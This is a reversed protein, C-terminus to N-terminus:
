KVETHVGWIESDAKTQILVPTGEPWDLNKGHVFVGAVVGIPGLALVGALSAGTAMALNAMEKKAKEGVYTETYTGDISKIKSFDIVVQANRGFNRAQKVKTVTGIGLAGKPFVLADDIIVDEAVRYTVEDGVKINKANVAEALEIKIITDAPVSVQGMPITAAGFSMTALATIRERLTGEATKGNLEIEAADIRESLPTGSVKESINWEIANMQAMLSPNVNNEYLLDCLVDIRASLSGTSHEGILETELFSLREMVAGKQEQGYIDNEIDALRNGINEGAAATTACNVTLLLACLILSFFNRLTKLM